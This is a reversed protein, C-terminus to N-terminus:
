PLLLKLSAIQLRICDALSRYVAENYRDIKLARQLLQIAQEVEGARVLLDALMQYDPWPRQDWNLSGGFSTQQM